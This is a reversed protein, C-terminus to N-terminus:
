EEKRLRLLGDGIFLFSLLYLPSFVGHWYSLEFYKLLYLGIDLVGLFLMSLAFCVATKLMKIKRSQCFLWASLGACVAATGVVTMYLVKENNATVSYITLVIVLCSFAGVGIRLFRELKVPPLLLLAIATLFFLYSGADSYDGIHLGYQENSVISYVLSYIESVTIICLGLMGTFLADKDGLRVAKKFCLVVVFILAFAAARFISYIMDFNENGSLKLAIIGAAALVSLAYIWKKM